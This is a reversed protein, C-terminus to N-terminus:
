LIIAFLILLTLALCLHLAMDGLCCVIYKGIASLIPRDIGKDYNDLLILTFM